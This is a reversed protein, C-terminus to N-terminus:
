ITLPIITRAFGPRLDEQCAARTATKAAAAVSMGEAIKARTSYNSYVPVALSLLIAIVAIVIMLEILTFGKYGSTKKSFVFDYCRQRQLEVSYPNLFNLSM